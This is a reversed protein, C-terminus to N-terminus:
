LVEKILRVLTEAKDKDKKTLQIQNERQVAVTAIESHPMSATIFEIRGGKKGKTYFIGDLHKLSIIINGPIGKVFMNRVGKHLIEIRNTYVNVNALKLEVSLLLENKM